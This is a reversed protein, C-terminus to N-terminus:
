RFIYNIAKFEGTIKSNGFVTLSRLNRLNALFEVDEDSFISGAISLRAVNLFDSSSSTSLTRSPTLEIPNELLEDSLHVTRVYPFLPAIAQWLPLANACCIELECVNCYKREKPLESEQVVCNIFKLRKLLPFDDLITDFVLLRNSLVMKMANTCPANTFFDKSEATIELYADYIENRVVKASRCAIIKLHREEEIAASEFDACVSAFCKAAPQHILKKYIEFLIYISLQVNPAPYPIILSFLM